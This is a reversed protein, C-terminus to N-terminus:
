CRSWHWGTGPSTYSAYSATGNFTLSKGVTDACRSPMILSQIRHPRAAQLHQCALTWVTQGKYLESDCLWVDQKTRVEGFSLSLRCIGRLIHIISASSVCWLSFSHLVKTSHISDNKKIYIIRKHQGTPLHCRHMLMRSQSRQWPMKTQRLLLSACSFHLASLSSIGCADKLTVRPRRRQWVHTASTIRWHCGCVDLWTLSLVLYWLLGNITIKPM